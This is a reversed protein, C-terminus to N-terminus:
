KRNRLKSQIDEDSQLWGHVKQWKDYDCRFSLLDKKNKQLWSFFMLMDRDSYSGRRKSWERWEVIILKEAKAVTLM